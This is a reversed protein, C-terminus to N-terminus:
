FVLVLKTDGILIAPATLQLTTNSGKTGITVITVPHIGALVTTKLQTITHVIIHHNLQLTHIITMGILM